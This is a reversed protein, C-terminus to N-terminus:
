VRLPVKDPFTIAKYEMTWWRSFLARYDAVKDVLMTGGFAWVCAFVFHAELLRKDPTPSGRVQEQAGLWGQASCTRLKVPPRCAKAASSVTQM